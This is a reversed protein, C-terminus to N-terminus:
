TFHEIYDCLSEEKGQVIGGLSAITKHQHKRATFHSSFQECLDSWSRIFKDPLSKFRTMALGKLTLVFLKCKVGGRAGHYDLITDIHEVHEDPDGTGNYTELKPPKELSKPIGCDTIRTSFLGKSPHNHHHSRKHPTNNRNHHHLDKEVGDKM